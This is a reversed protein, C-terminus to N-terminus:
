DQLAGEPRHQCRFAASWWPVDTGIESHQWFWCIARIVCWAECYDLALIRRILDRVAEYTRKRETEPILESPAASDCLWKYGTRDLCHSEEIEAALIVALNSGSMDYPWMTCRCVDAMMNWEAPAFRDALRRDALELAIRWCAVSAEVAATASEYGFPGVLADIAERSADDLRFNTQQKTM